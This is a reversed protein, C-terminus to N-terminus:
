FCFRDFGNNGPPNNKLTQLLNKTGPVMWFNSSPQRPKLEGKVCVVAEKEMKGM